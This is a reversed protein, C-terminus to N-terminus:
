SIGGVFKRCGIDSSFKIFMLHTEAPQQSKTEYRELFESYGLEMTQCLEM